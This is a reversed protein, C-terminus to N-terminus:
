SRKQKIKKTGVDFCIRNGNTRSGAYTEKTKTQELSRLFSAASKAERKFFFFFFVNRRTVGKKRYGLDAAETLGFM